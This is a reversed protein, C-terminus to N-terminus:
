PLPPKRCVVVTLQPPLQGAPRVLADCPDLDLDGLRPPGFGAAVQVPHALGPLDDPLADLEEDVGVTAVTALLGDPHHSRRLVQVNPPEFLGDGGVVQDSQALHAIGDIGVDGGTLVAGVQGVEAPHALGAGHVAELDVHGAAAADGLPQPGGGDGGREAQLHGTVAPWVQVDVDSGRSGVQSVELPEVVV